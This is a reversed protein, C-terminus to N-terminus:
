MNVTAQLNEYSGYLKFNKIYAVYSGGIAYVQLLDGSKVSIDETFTQFSSGTVSREIGVAVGNKYIKAYVTNSSSAALDFKVRVTGNGTLIATEKVKTYTTDNGSSRQNDNSFWLFDGAKLKIAEVIGIGNHYGKPIYQQFSTPTITIAGKDEMVGVIDGADTSATKGSLLDSATANGSGGEGQLIFNGNAYRLTYIGNAKLNTVPNGNAKLIPIAGLGNINLTTAGTNSTTNLFAVGLGNKLATIAEYTATLTNTGTATGIWHVHALDAQHTTLAQNTKALETLPAADDAKKLSAQVTADLDTKPIGSTPKQYLKSTDPLTILVNGNSDPQINNVTKVEGAKQQLEEIAEYTSRFMFDFHGPAPSEDMKFGESKKLESPEQGIATWKLPKKLFAM